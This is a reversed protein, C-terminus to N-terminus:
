ILSLYETPESKNSMRNVECTYSFGNYTTPSKTTGLGKERKVYFTSSMLYIPVRFSSQLVGHSYICQSVNQFGM